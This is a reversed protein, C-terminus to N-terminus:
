SDGRSSWESTSTSKRRIFYMSFVGVEQCNSTTFVDHIDHFVLRNPEAPESGDGLFLPCRRLDRENAGPLFITFVLRRFRTQVVFVTPSM